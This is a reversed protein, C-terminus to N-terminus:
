RVGAATVLRPAVPTAGADAGAATVVRGTPVHRVIGSSSGQLQAMGLQVALELDPDVALAREVLHALVAAASGSRLVHGQDRLRSRLLELNDVHGILLADISGTCDSTPHSETQLAPM